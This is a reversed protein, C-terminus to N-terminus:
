MLLDRKLPSSNEYQTLHSTQAGNHSGSEEIHVPPPRQPLSITSGEQFVQTSHSDGQQDVHVILAQQRQPLPLATGPLVLQRNAPIIRKQEALLTDAQGPAHPPEAAGTHAPQPRLLTDNESSDAQVLRSNVDQLAPIAPAKHGSVESRGLSSINGPENEVF